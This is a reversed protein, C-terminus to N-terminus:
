VEASGALDPLDILLRALGTFLVLFELRGFFMGAM